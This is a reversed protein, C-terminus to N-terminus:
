VGNARGGRARGGRGRSRRSRGRGRNQNGRGATRGGRFGGGRGRARGRPNGRGRGAATGTQGGGGSTEWEDAWAFPLCDLQEDDNSCKYFIRGANAQTRATIALVPLGHLPCNPLSTAPAHGNGAGARGRGRNVRGPARGTAGGGRPISRAARGTTTNQMRGGQQAPAGGRGGGRGGAQGRGAQGRGARDRGGQGRGGQGRGGRFGGADRSTGSASLIQGIFDDCIVCALHDPSLLLMQVEPPLFLINFVLEVMHMQGHTCTQCHSEQVAASVTAGAPFSVGFRCGPNGMCRAYYRNSESVLCIPLGCRRCPGIVDGVAAPDQDIRPFFNGMASMMCGSQGQAALFDHKFANLAVELVDDKSRNGAAVENIGLEIQGRLEPEWLRDLGMRYYAMILGEGISSPSFQMQHNKHAYGRDLQKQIHEAVTADTGIGFAEMKAILDRESLRCPPETSGEKLLLEEPIFQQGVQFTPLNDNGGWNTYPYVDLWNRELIMLGTAVFEEGAINIHVKTEHGLADLSCCALFSRVIFEYLKRKEPNWSSENGYKTPHIPPHAQDDNSGKRPPKWMSGDAIAQAHAGWNPDGTHEQVHAMLNLGDPFRDTETRPYSIFGAQYLEEAYKMIREGPIRLYQTGKKQMELTSLPLPAWRRKERGDVKTVVATPNEVCNEYLLAAIVHDFLRGRDWEFVCSATNKDSGYKKKEGEAPTSDVHKVHIYYFDEKVHGKIDWERQVILGLTPFQCPGYSLLPGRENDGQGWDFRSQLLMTQFRTFSAGVRLDIEQRADVAFAHNQNPPVLNNIAHHLDRPILASFRARLVTMNPNESLCVKVVEFAINEGERDCDLWLALMGCRRAQTRLNRETDQKDEPVKQHVPADFLDAPACSGWSRHAEGFDLEMLHGTVSTFVMTAPQGNLAYDFQFNKNFRACSPIDTRNGNSLIRSVERAVSPKEAVNLVLM